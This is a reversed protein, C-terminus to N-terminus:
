GFTNQLYAAQSNAQEIAQEMATFEDYYQTQITKLHDQFASIQDNMDDISRGIFFNDNVMTATGAQEKVQSVTDQLTNYLRKAIGLTASSDTSSNGNTFLKMVGTPDSAIASKLKNEDIILKGHDLYDSSTTIGIQALQSFTGGTIGSVPNYIDQRLSSLANNLINDGYLTGQHAKENWNNIDTENMQAKQASTLPPYDRDPAMSTMDNIQKITDNYQDVFSKIQNFVSDTDTSIGVTVTETAPISQTLNFTTGNVTFTNSHRSTEMGNLTFTADSGGQETGTMQLTTKLFDSNFIMENGNSNLNGSQTTSFAVKQTASDYFALVGAGSGNISQLMGDLSMSGNFDKVTSIANGSSDYTTLDFHVTKYNYSATITSGKTIQQNFTMQGTTQNVLVTPTTAPDASDFASQTTVVNFSKDVGGSNVVVPSTVDVAGNALQFDTGNTAVNIKEESISHSDWSIATNSLNDVQGILPKSSDFLPQNSIPDKKSISSISQNTAATALSADSLTYTANGASTGATVTVRSPDSVTAAKAYSSQIAMTNVTTQLNSLLTSMSRYDDRKWEMLQLQQNMQDLPVSEAQMLKNVISDVDIGSALGSIQLSSNTGTNLLYYNSNTASTSGSVSVM